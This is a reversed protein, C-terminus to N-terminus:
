LASFFPTPTHPYMYYLIRTCHLSAAPWQWTVVRKCVVGACVTM